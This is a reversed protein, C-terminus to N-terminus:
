KLISTFPNSLDTARVLQNLYSETWIKIVLTHDSAIQNNPMVELTNSIELEERKM